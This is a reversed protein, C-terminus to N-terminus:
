LPPLVVGIQELIGRPAGGAIKEPNIEVIKEGAVKYFFYHEPIKVPRGTAPIPDMGPMAWTGLHTGGQRWLIAFCDSRTEVPDNDYNWDPFGSYLARLMALFETKDLVRTAAIFRLEESVTHAVREVDHTRLGQMYDQLVSPISKSM